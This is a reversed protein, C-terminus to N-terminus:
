KAEEKFAKKLEHIFIILFIINIPWGLEEISFNILSICFQALEVLQEM